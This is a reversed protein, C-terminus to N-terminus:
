RDNETRNGNGASEGNSMGREAVGSGLAAAVGARARDFRAVASKVMLDIISQEAYLKADVTALRLARAREHQVGWFEVLDRDNWVRSLADVQPPALPGGAQELQAVVDRFLLIRLADHQRDFVAQEVDDARRGAELAVRLSERTCGAGALLALPLLARAARRARCAGIIRIAARTM